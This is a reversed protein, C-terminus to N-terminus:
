EKDSEWHGISFAGGMLNGMGKGRLVMQFVRFLPGLTNTNTQKNWTLNLKEVSLIKLTTYYCSM